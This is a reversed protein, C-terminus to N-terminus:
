QEQAFHARPEVLIDNDCLSDCGDKSENSEDDCAKDLVEADCECKDCKDCKDCEDCEDCQSRSGTSSLALIAHMAANGTPSKSINSVTLSTVLVPVSVGSVVGPSVGHVSGFYLILTYQLSNLYWDNGGTVARATVCALTALTSGTNLSGQYTNILHLSHLSM